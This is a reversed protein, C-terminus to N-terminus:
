KRFSQLLEYTWVLLKNSEFDGEKSSSIEEVENDSAYENFYITSITFALINLLMLVVLIKVSKYKVPTHINKNM